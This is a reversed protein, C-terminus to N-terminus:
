IFESKDDRHNVDCGREVLARILKTYKKIHVKNISVINHLITRGGADVENVYDSDLLNEIIEDNWSEWDHYGSHKKHM